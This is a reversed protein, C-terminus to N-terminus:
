EKAPDLPTRESALMLSIDPDADALVCSSRKSSCNRRCTEGIFLAVSSPDCGSPLGFLCPFSFWVFLALRFLLSFSRPCCFASCSLFALFPSTGKCFCASSDVLAFIRPSEDDEIKDWLEDAVSMENM